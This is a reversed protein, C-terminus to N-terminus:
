LRIQTLEPRPCKVCRCSVERPDIWLTFEPPLNLDSYRMKSVKAACQLVPDAPGNEDVHVSRFAQGKTPKELHWHNQFKEVLVKTLHDCFTQLNEDGMSKNRKLLRKVFVVAAAVEEKM